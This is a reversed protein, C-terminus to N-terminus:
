SSFSCIRLNFNSKPAAAEQVAKLYDCLGSFKYISALKPVSVLALFDAQFDLGM